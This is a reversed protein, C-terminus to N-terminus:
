NTETGLITVIPIEWKKNIETANLANESKQHRFAQVAGYGLAVRTLAIAAAVIMGAIMTGGLTALGSSIGVVSLGRIGLFKIATNITAFGLISATLAGIKESIKEKQDSTLKEYDSFGITKMIGVQKLMEDSPLSRKNIIRFLTAESCEIAKAVQRIHLKNDKIFTVLYDKCNDTTIEEM